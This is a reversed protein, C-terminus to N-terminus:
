LGGSGLDVLSQFVESFKNVAGGICRLPRVHQHGKKCLHHGAYFKSIITILFTIVEINVNLTKM